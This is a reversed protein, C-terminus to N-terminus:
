TLLRARVAALDDDGLGASRLYAEIDLSALLDFLLEPASTNKRRLIEAIVASQDDKGRGAWFRQLRLNSVEYDDVIDEPVVGALALVLVSILGTRDRGAGCHVVVAGPEAGAVAAVAAACREAKRELFPLYYLPSGDLEEPRPGREQDNRLDVRTGVGYSELAAWGAETLRDLDGARVIAGWSTTRGDYTRLGGLDRV